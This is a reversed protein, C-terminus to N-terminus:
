INGNSYPSNRELSPVLFVGWAHAQERGSTTCISAEAMIRRKRQQVMWGQVRVIEGLILKDKFRVRLDATFAQLNHAIIAQSMVEDLVTSIIGGHITGQFSEWERGPV